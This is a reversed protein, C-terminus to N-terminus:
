RSYRVDKLFLGEAPATAGARSRDLSELISQIEEPALKGRGVDVLTGVISRVMHRLFGNGEIEFIIMDGERSIESKTITRLSTKTDSGTSQFASFDHRGVLFAAGRSMADSDLPTYIHWYYKNSFPSRLAGNYIRYQYEKSLADYRAHFSEEAEGAFTVVIDNPLLSNIARHLEGVSMSSTTKFNAVQMFAHVGADTRGSGILSVPERIIKEVTEELVEQITAGLAQKQWGLYRSGDYQIIIKINRM